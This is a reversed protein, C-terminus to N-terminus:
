WAQFIDNINKRSFTIRFIKYFEMSVVSATMRLHETCLINKFIVCLECSFVQTLTEKKIFNYDSSQWKISLSVIACTNKQSTQLIESFVKKWLARGTAAESVAIASNM